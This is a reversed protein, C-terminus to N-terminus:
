KTAKNEFRLDPRFRQGYIMEFDSSQMILVDLNSVVNKVPDGIMTELKKRQSKTLAALVREHYESEIKQTQKILRRRIKEARSKLQNQQRSSIKLEDVFSSEVLMTLLGIRDIAISSIIRDLVKNQDPSLLQEIESVSHTFLRQLQAERDARWKKMEADTGGDWSIMVWEQYHKQLQKIQHTQKATLNLTDRFSEQEARGNWGIGCIQFLGRVVDGGFVLKKSRQKRIKPQQLIFEGFPDFDFTDPFNLPCLHPWPHNKELDDFRRIASKKLQCYLVGVPVNTLSPVRIVLKEFSKRQSPRLESLLEKVCEQKLQKLKDRVQVAAARAVQKIQASQKASIELPQKFVGLVLHYPLGQKRIHYRVVLQKLRERQHPLLLNSIVENTKKNAAELAIIKEEYQKQQEASSKGVSTGPKKWKRVAADFDSVAQQLKKEQEATFQLDHRVADHDLFKLLPRGGLFRHKPTLILGLKGTIEVRYVNTHLSTVLRRERQKLRFQNITAPSFQDIESQSFGQIRIKQGDIELVGSKETAQGAVHYSNTLASYSVTLFIFFAVSRKSSKCFM